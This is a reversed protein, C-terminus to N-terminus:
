LVYSLIEVSHHGNIARRENGSQFIDGSSQPDIGHPGRRFGAAAVRRAAHRHRIQHGSEKKRLHPEIWLIRLIRVAIAEDQRLPVRRRNQVRRPGFGAGEIAGLQHLQALDPRIEFTMRRRPQREDVDGGARETLADARRDARRQVRAADLGVVSGIHEQAVALRGLAGHPFRRIDRRQVLELIQAADGVDVREALAARRHPLVVHPLELAAPLREAPVGDHDVTVVDRLDEVRERFRLRGFTLRRHDQRARQFAFAHREDFALVAPVALRELLALFEIARERLEVFLEHRLRLSLAGRVERRPNGPRRRLRAADVM